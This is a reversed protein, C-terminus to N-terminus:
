YFSITIFDFSLTLNAPVGKANEINDKAAQQAATMRSLITLVYTCTNPVLLGNV